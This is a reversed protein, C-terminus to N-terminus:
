KVQGANANKTKNQSTDESTDIARLERAVCNVGYVVCSNLPTRKDVIVFVAFRVYNSDM